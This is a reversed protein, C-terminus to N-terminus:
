SGIVESIDPYHHSLHELLSRTVPAFHRRGDWVLKVTRQLTVGQVPIARLTGYAEEDRMAYRPLIALGIGAAVTRKISELNDFEANIRPTVGHQALLRDLWIRSQSAPQRMIFTRGDLEGIAVDDRNWFDHRRGVIVYQPIAELEQACLGHHLDLLLEGEVLGVDARRALIDQVIVPTIHTELSVVLLPYRTRFAQIIESLVYISIGPTAAVHVQGEKLHTVDTIANEAESVLDLIRVAYDHLLRGSETATTGRRSREFLKTGLTNELDRIHQSVGSQSMMLREAAASFSGDEVVCEFIELKYPDLM